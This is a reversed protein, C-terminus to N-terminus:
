AGEVKQISTKWYTTPELEPGKAYAKRTMQKGTILFDGAIGKEIGEVRTKVAEDLKEYQKALPRLREREELEAILADDDLIEAETRIVDKLCIAAFDCHGCIQPDYSIREPYTGADVHKNVLEAKQILSEAYTYDQHVWIAKPAATVKNILLFLGFETGGARGSLLYTMLQGPYQRTWITRAELMDEVCNLAEWSHPALGKVEVPFELTGDPTRVIFDLKGHLKVRRLLGSSEDQIPRDQELIRYGANELYIKAVNQEIVHGLDFLMKKEVTIAPLANWNLRLYTLYRACPHGIRSAWNSSPPYSKISKEVARKIDGVVDPLAPSLVQPTQESM